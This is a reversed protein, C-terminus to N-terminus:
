FGAFIYGSSITPPFKVPLQYISVFCAVYFWKNKCFLYGKQLLKVIFRLKMDTGLVEFPETQGYSFLKKRCKSESIYIESREAEFKGVYNQGSHQM